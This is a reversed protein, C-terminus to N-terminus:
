KAEKKAPTATAPNPSDALSKGAKSSSPEGDSTVGLQETLNAGKTSTSTGTISSEQDDPFNALNPESPNALAAERVPTGETVGEQANVESEREAHFDFNDDQLRRKTLQEAAERVEDLATRRKEGFKSM